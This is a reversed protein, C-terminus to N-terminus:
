FRATKRYRGPRIRALLGEAVVIQLQQRIKPGISLNKPHLLRLEPIFGYVEDLDFEENPIRRLCSLIDPLWDRSSKGARGVFDFRRWDELVGEPARPTGSVVIRVLAAPPLATLDINCGQWGARRATPGLPNRPIVSLRSLANRPIAQLGTVLLTPFDYSLLLLNPHDRSAIARMFTQYEGDLVRNGFPRRSAKLEYPERCADCRFDLAKTNEPTPSLPVGGCSLCYAERAVWDQSLVKALQAPSRYGEGVKWDLRLDM